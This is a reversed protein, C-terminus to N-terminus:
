RRKNPRFVQRPPPNPFSTRQSGHDTAEQLSSQVPLDHRESEVLESREPRTQLHTELSNKREVNPRGSIPTDDVIPAQGEVPQQAQDDAM